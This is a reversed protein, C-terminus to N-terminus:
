GGERMSVPRAQVLLAPDEPRVLEALVRRAEAAEIDLAVPRRVRLV